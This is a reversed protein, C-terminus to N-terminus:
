NSESVGFGKGQEIAGVDETELVDGCEAVKDACDKGVTEILDRSDLQRPHFCIEAERIWVTLQRTDPLRQSLHGLELLDVNNSQCGSVRKRGPAVM